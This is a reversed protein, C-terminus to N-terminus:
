AMFIMAVYFALAALAFFLTVPQNFWTNSGVHPKSVAVALFALIPSFGWSLLFWLFGSRNRRGRAFAGVLVCLVLYTLAIVIILALVTM